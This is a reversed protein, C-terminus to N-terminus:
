HDLGRAIQIHMLSIGLHECDDERIVVGDHPPRGNSGGWMEGTLGAMSQFNLCAVTRVGRRAGASNLTAKHHFARAYTVKLLRKVAKSWDNHPSPTALRGFGVRTGDVMEAIFEGLEPQYLIVSPKPRAAHQTWVPPSKLHRDIVGFTGSSTGVGGNMFNVRTMGYAADDFDFRYWNQYLDLQARSSKGSLSVREAARAMKAQVLAARRVVAGASTVDVVLLLDALECHRRKGHGDIFKVMPAAHCFVGTLQLTLGCGACLPKWAKAIDPIGGLTVAAVFGVESRPPSLMADSGVLLANDIGSNAASAM